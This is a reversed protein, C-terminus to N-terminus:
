NAKSQSVFIGIKHNAMSGHLSYLESRSRRVIEPLMRPVALM